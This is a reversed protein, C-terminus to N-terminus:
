RTPVAVDGKKSGHYTSGKVAVCADVSPENVIAIARDNGLKHIHSLEDGTCEVCDVHSDHTLMGEDSLLNGEILITSSGIVFDTDIAISYGDDRDDSYFPVTNIEALADVNLSHDFEDLIDDYALYAPDLGPRSM